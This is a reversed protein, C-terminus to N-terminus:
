PGRAGAARGPREGAPSLLAAAYAAPDRILARAVTLDAERGEAAPCLARIAAAEGAPLPARAARHRALAGAMPARGRALDALAREIAAQGLSTCVQPLVGLTQIPWGYPAILRSWSVRLEAGDPLTTLTQVLGKGLTASGVVVGRGRDALAAALVEAASATRGDVLVVVPMGAVLDGGSSRLVRTADPHRGETLAIIGEPLIADATALAQSLVGGRNGRLDIVLGAIAKGGALQTEIEGGVRAATANNFDSVRLILLDGRREAHVTEPPVLAREFEAQRVRGDAGRWSIVVPTGDPGRLRALALAPGMARTAQGDIATITDGARIGGIWAPSDIAVSQVVLQGGRRLLTLGVGASGARRNRDTEAEQPPTYRSYPDLRNFMEDFFGRMIGTTGVARLEPSAGFAAGGIEAALRAWAQPDEGTPAPRAFLVREGTLLVVQRDRLEVALKPDLAAIGALGWVTLRSVPVAELARPLIFAFAARYVSAALEMDFRPPAGTEGRAPPAFLLLLLLGARIM